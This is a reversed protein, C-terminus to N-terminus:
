HGHGQEYARRALERDLMFMGGPAEGIMKLKDVVRGVSEEEEVQEAVFWM